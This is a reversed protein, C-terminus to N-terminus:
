RFIAKLEGWTMAEVPVSQGAFPSFLVTACITADDNSDLIWSMVDSAEATGWFNNTVDYTVAGLACQRYCRIAPGSGRHFDCGHITLAAADRAFVVSNTGGTLISGEVSASCHQDVLLAGFEGAIRSDRIECRAGWDVAIGIGVDLIDCDEVSCVGETIQMGLNSGGSMRCGRFTMSPIQASPPANMFQCNEVLAGMGSGVAFIGTPPGSLVTSSILSNRIAGGEGVTSWLIGMDFDEIHCRDIWLTGRLNLCSYCGRVTLDSIALEGVTGFFGVPSQAGAQGAYVAPGIITVDAGAGIITLNSSTVLGYTEIANDWYQPWMTIKDTYEGPGILITDGDVAVNLAQQLVSYNGTGDKRVTITAGRAATVAFVLLILVTVRRLM